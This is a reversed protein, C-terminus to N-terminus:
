WYFWTNILDNKGRTAQGGHWLALPGMQRRERTTRGGGSGGHADAPYHRAASLWLDEKFRHLATYQFVTRGAADQHWAPADTFTKHVVVAIGSSSLVVLRM